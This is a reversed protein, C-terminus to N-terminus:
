SWIEILTRVIHTFILVDFSLLVVVQTWRFCARARAMALPEDTFVFWLLYVAAPVATLATLTVAIWWLIKM